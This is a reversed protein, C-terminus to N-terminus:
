RSKMMFGRGEKEAQGNTGRQDRRRVLDAKLFLSLFFFSVLPNRSELGFAVLQIVFGLMKIENQFKNNM